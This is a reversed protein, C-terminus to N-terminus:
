YGGTSYTPTIAGRRRVPVSVVTNIDFFSVNNQSLHSYFPDGSLNTARANPTFYNMFNLQYCLLWQPEFLYSKNEFIKLRSFYSKKTLGLVSLGVGMLTVISDDSQSIIKACNSSLRIQLIRIIWMAWAAESAHGLPVKNAIIKNLVEAWNKKNIKYQQNQYFAIQECVQPLCAPENLACSLLLGEFIEWNAKKINENRLRAIAYKMIGEDPTKNIFDFVLDFYAILDHKQAIDNTHRFSFTRIRSTWIPEVIEPLQLIQTKSPNLALEYENLLAQLHSLVSEAEAYSDLAFEYDDIFRIGKLKKFKKALLSDIEGLIIEAIVRSIDTGIPIGVTQNNNISRCYTDFKDQWTNSLTNSAYM